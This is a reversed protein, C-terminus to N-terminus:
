ENPAPQATVLIMVTFGTDAIVPLVPMQRPAVVASASPVPPPVQLLLAPVVAGTFGAPTTLPASSPVAVIVYVVTAPQVAVVMIVTFRAGEAILPINCKHAPPVVVSPLVAPPPVQVLPLVTVAVMLVVPVTVPLAGPVETIVYESPLPQVTVAVTVTFAPAAPMMPAVDNHLPVVIVSLSAVVPPTHLLVGVETAVILPAPTTVPPVAPIAVINYVGTVPQADTVATVTFGAGSGIVPTPWTHAPSVVVSPLVGLSPAHLLLLVATAVASGTNPIIVPTMGPVDAIV